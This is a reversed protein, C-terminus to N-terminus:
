QCASGLRGVIRSDGVWGEEFPQLYQSLSNPATIARFPQCRTRAVPMPRV